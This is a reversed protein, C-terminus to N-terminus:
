LVVLTPLTARRVYATVKESAPRDPSSGQLAEAPVSRRDDRPVVTRSDGPPAVEAIDPEDGPAPGDRRRARGAGGLAGLEPDEPEPM